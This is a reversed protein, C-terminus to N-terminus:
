ASIAEDIDKSERGKVALNSLNPHKINLYADDLKQVGSIRNGGTNCKSKKHNRVVRIHQQILELKLSREQYLLDPTSVSQKEIEAGTAQFSRPWIHAKNTNKEYNPRKLSTM